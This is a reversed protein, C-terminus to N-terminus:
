NFAVPYHFLTQTCECPRSTKLAVTPITVQPFEQLLSLYLNLTGERPLKRTERPVSESLWIGDELHFSNETKISVM